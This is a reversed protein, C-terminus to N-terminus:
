KELRIQRHHKFIWIERLVPRKDIKWRFNRQPFNEHYSLFTIICVAQKPPAISKQVYYASAGQFIVGSTKIKLERRSKASPYFHYVGNKTMVKPWFHSECKQDKSYSKHTGDLLCIHGTQFVYADQRSSM